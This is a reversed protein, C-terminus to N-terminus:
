KTLITGYAATADSMSVLHKSLDTCLIWKAKRKSFVLTKKQLELDEEYIKNVGDITTQVLHVETYGLQHKNSIDYTM